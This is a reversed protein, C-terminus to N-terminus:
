TVRIEVQDTRVKSFQINPNAYRGMNNYKEISNAVRGGLPILDLVRTPIAGVHMIVAGVMRWKRFADTKETPPEGHADHKSQETQYNSKGRHSSKATEVASVNANLAFV